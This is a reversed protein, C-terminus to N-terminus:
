VGQITFSRSRGGGRMIKKLIMCTSESARGQHIVLPKAFLLCHKMECRTTDTRVRSRTMGGGCALPGPWSWRLPNSSKPSAFRRDIGSDCRIAWGVFLSTGCFQWCLSVAVLHYLSRTQPLRSLLLFVWVKQLGGINSLLGKNWVGLLGRHKSCSKKSGM